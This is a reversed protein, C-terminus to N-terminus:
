KELKGAHECILLVQELISTFIFLLDLFYQGFAKSFSVQFVRDLFLLFTKLIGELLLYLFVNKKMTKQPRSAFTSGPQDWPTEWAGELTM